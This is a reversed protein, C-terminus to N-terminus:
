LSRRPSQKHRPHGEDREAARALAGLEAHCLARAIERREPNGPKADLNGAARFREIQAGVLAGLEADDARGAVAERYRSVLLNDIGVAAYRLDNRLEDDFALRQMYHSLAIEAPALPYRAPVAPVQGEGAQQEARAIRHQLQAVAGPLLKLADRHDGGLPARLETKGVIGRLDKPVVLRAHYRGGRNVLHKVKGAM